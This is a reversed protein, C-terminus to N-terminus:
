LRARLAEIETVIAERVSRTPARSTRTRPDFFVNVAESTALCEDDRFVGYVTTISKNGIATLAVGVQVEGPYSTEKIFDVTIRALVTDLAESPTFFRYLYGVRCAELWVSYVANNVHGMRDEDSFRITVTTWHEYIDRRRADIDDVRASM